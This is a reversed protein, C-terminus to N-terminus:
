IGLRAELRRCGDHTDSANQAKDSTIRQTSAADPSNHRLVLGLGVRHVREVGCDCRAPFTRTSM